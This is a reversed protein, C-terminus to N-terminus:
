SKHRTMGVISEMFPKNLLHFLMLYINKVSHYKIMAKFIRVSVKQELYVINCCGGILSTLYPAIESRM